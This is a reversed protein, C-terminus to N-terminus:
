TVEQEAFELFEDIEHHFVELAAPDPRRGVRAQFYGDLRIRLVFDVVMYANMWPRWRRIQEVLRAREAGNGLVNILLDREDLGLDQLVKLFAAAWDATHGAESVTEPMRCVAQVLTEADRPTELRRPVLELGGSTALRLDDFEKEALELLGALATARRALTPDTVGKYVLDHQLSAWAHQLLTMIQVEVVQRGDAEGLALIAHIAQYGPIGLNDAESGRREEGVLTWGEAGAIERIAIIADERSPGRRVVIRVGILDQIEQEPREYGKRLAKELFSERSKVRGTVFVHDVGGNTALGVTIANLVHVLREDALHAVGDYWAGLDSNM